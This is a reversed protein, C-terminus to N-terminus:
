NVFATASVTATYAGAPQAASPGAEVQFKITTASGSPLNGTASQAITNYSTSLHDWCHNAIDGGGAQNCALGNDKYRTVIDGGEPTFGFGTASAGVSWAYDPDSAATAYDAFSHAGSQLAPATSAKIQMTYGNASNTKVNLSASGDAVGGVSGDISPTMTVSSPLTLSITVSDMQQYGANLKYSLATSSGSGIEGLTSQSVYSASNSLGGGMNISDNQIQYDTSSMVYAWAPTAALISGIMILFKMRKLSFM